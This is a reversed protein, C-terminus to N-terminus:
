FLTLLFLIYRFIQSICRSFLAENVAGLGRPGLLQDSSNLNFLKNLKNSLWKTTQIFHIIERFYVYIADFM